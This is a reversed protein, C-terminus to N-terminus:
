VTQYWTQALIDILKLLSLLVDFAESKWVVLEFLEVLLFSARIFTVSLSGSCNDRSTRNYLVPNKRYYTYGKLSYRDANFCIDISMQEILIRSYSSCKAVISSPKESHSQDDHFTRNGFVENM